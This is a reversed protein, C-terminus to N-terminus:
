LTKLKNLTVVAKGCIRNVVDPVIAVPPSYSLDLMYIEDVTLGGTIAATFTDIRKAVGERGAMQAGLLKRSIKDIIIVATIDCAGPISTVHSKYTGSIKLINKNLAAAEESGIGTRAFELGFVKEIRTGASGYFVDNIGAANAGAVRGTKIANVSTPIHEPLGTILNKVLSCDGAAFINPQSTQQRSSVKIANNLGLEIASGDLFGTNPRVGATVVIIDSDIELNETGGGIKSFASVSYATNSSKDLNLNEVSSGTIIKINSEKIKEDLIDTIENEYFNFAKDKKEIVTSDIDRNAFAEALLLGIYGGGVIVANKPSKESLYSKLILADEVGHFYFVNNANIGPVDIKVPSSGSCIILRDYIYTKIKEAETNKDDNVRATIEKGTTNISLVKENLLIRINRKEEFFSEPYAFLDEINSVTGSIFYPLGCSGYSIYRSGELVSVNLDPNIRKVQNAAALGSANGGIIYINKYIDSLM